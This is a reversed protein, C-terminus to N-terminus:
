DKLKIQKEAEEILRAYRRAIYDHEDVHRKLMLYKNSSKCEKTIHTQLKNLERQHLELNAKLIRLRTSMNKSFGSDQLCFNKHALCARTVLGAINASTITIM